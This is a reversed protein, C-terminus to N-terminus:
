FANRIYVGILSLLHDHLQTMGPDAEARVVKGSARLSAVPSEEDREFIEEVPEAAPQARLAAASEQAVPMDTQVDAEKVEEEQVLDDKKNGKEMIPMTLGPKTGGVNPEQKVGNEDPDHSPADGADALDPQWLETQAM